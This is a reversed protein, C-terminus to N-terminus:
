APNIADIVRALSTEYIGGFDIRTIDRLRISTLAQEWDGEVTLERWLMEEERIEHPRGILCIEPDDHETYLTVLPALARIEKLIGRVDGSLSLAPGTPPWADQTHLSRQAFISGRKRAKITQITDNPVIVYGNPIGGYMVYLLTWATGTAVIFGDITDARRILRRVKVFRRDSM